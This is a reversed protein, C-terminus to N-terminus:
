SFYHWCKKGDAEDDKLVFHNKLMQGMEWWDNYEAVRQKSYCKCIKIYLKGSQSSLEEIKQEAQTEIIQNKKNAINKAQKMRGKTDVADPLRKMKNNDFYKVM